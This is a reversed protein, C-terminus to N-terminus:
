PFIALIASLQEKPQAPEGRPCAVDGPNTTRAERPNKPNFVFHSDV